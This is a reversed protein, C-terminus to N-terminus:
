PRSVFAKKTGTAGSATVVLHTNSLAVAWGFGSEEGYQTITTATTPFNGIVNKKFVYVSRAGLATIALHTTSIAMAYGFGSVNAYATIISTASTPLDGNAKKKFIFAQGSGGACCPIQATGVVLHTESMAVTNGFGVHTTYSDITSTASAGFDGSGDKKFIFLKKAPAPSSNGGASVVLHTTSLAVAHGFGEEGTYTAFAM